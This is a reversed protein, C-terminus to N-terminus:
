PGQATSNGGVHGEPDSTCRKEMGEEVKWGGSANGAPVFQRDQGHLERQGAQAQPTLNGGIIKFM